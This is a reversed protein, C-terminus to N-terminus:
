GESAHFGIENLAMVHGYFIDEFGHFVAEGGLRCAVRQGPDHILPCTEAMEDVALECGWLLIELLFAEFTVLLLQFKKEMASGIQLCAVIMQLFNWRSYFM